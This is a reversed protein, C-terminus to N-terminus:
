FEPFCPRIAAIRVRSPRPGNASAIVAPRSNFDAAKTAVITETADAITPISTINKMNQDPATIDALGPFRM